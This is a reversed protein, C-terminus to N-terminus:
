KVIFLCQILSCYGALPRNCLILRKIPEEEQTHDVNKNKNDQHRHHCITSKTHDAQFTCSIERVLGDLSM